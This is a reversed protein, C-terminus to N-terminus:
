KGSPKGSGGCNASGTRTRDRGRALSAEGLRVCLWSGAARVLWGVSIGGVDVEWGVKVRVVGVM